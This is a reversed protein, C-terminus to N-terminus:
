ITDKYSLRVFHKMFSATLEFIFEVEEEIVAEDHKVYSNQYNTYYDVLKVFMNVLEASGGKQRIYPGLLPIQKELPKGNSLLLRLLKELALRLDDLVNRIFIGNAHKQVAQNFLSLAEPFPTLFHQTREILKEDLESSVAEDALQGYRAILMLKLTQAAQRNREQRKPHDCLERLIQYKQAPTFVMLNDFLATRKNPADFPYTPHPIEVNWQISYAATIKVFDLGSLGDNTDAIISAAHSIFTPPIEIAM